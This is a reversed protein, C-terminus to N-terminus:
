MPSFSASGTGNPAGRPGSDAVLLKVADPHSETQIVIRGDQGAAELGNEILNILVRRM